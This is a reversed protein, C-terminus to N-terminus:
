RGQRWVDVNPIGNKFEECRINGNRSANWRRVKPDLRKQRQRQVYTCDVRATM